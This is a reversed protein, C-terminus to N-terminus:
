NDQANSFSLRLSNNPSSIDHKIMIKSFSTCHLYDNADFNEKLLWGQGSIFKLWM